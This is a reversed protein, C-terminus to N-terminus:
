LRAFPRSEILTLPLEGLFILAGALALAGIGFFCVAIIALWGLTHALTGHNRSMGHRVSMGHTTAM